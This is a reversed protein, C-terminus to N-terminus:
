LIDIKDLITPLVAADFWLCITGSPYLFVALDAIYILDLHPRFQISLKIKNLLLSM